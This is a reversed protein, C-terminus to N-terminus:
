DAAPPDKSSAESELRKDEIEKLYRTRKAADRKLELLLRGHRVRNEAAKAKQRDRERFKRAKNLNIIEAM